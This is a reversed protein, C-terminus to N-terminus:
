PAVETITMTSAMLGNYFSGNIYTTTGIPTGARVKFTTPSTTGAPMRHHLRIPKVAFGGIAEAVVAIANANSDQFLAVIMTTVGGAGLVIVVDIYLHNSAVTPTITLPPLFQTGESQQPITNDLPISATGSSYSGEQVHQRQVVNSLTDGWKLGFPQSPDAILVEDDLGVPLRGITYPDIGVFLDGKAAARAPMTELINDRLHVNMQSPTVIENVVWSRPQSWKPPPKASVASLRSLARRLFRFPSSQFLM